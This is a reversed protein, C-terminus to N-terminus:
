ILKTIKLFEASLKINIKVLCEEHRYIMVKGNETIMTLCVKTAYSKTESITLISNKETEANIENLMTELGPLIILSLYKSKTLEEQLAQINKWEFMITDVAFGRVTNSSKADFAKKIQEAKEKSESNYLIGIHIKGSVKQELGRDYTLTKLVLDAFKDPPLEQGYVSIVIVTLMICMLLLAKVKM